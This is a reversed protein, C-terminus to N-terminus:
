LFKLSIWPNMSSLSINTYTKRIRKRRKTLLKVRRSIRM